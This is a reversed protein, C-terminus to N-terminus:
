SYVPQGDVGLLYRETGSEVRPADAGLAVAVKNCANRMVDLTLEVAEAEGFHSRLGSGDVSAPTWILADVYRLAAKHRESLESSEYHDIGDYLSETGGADLAAGERLSKCIRCNHQRAGRLRVIEPTVPDLDRLRGVAPLFEDLLYNAPDTKHDWEAPASGGNVGLSSLGAQARPVFDAIFIMMAVGFAKPGLLDAFAARQADSIVSVDASFQEAFETVMPDVPGGTSEAPLPPMGVTSACVERVAANVDALEPPSIAVLRTLEDLV